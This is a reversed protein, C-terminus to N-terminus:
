VVQYLPRRISPRPPHVLSSAENSPSSTYSYYALSRVISSSCLRLSMITSHHNPFCFISIIGVIFAHNEEFKVDRFLAEEHLHYHDRYLAYELVTNLHGADFKINSPKFFRIGIPVELSEKTQCIELKVGDVVVDLEEVMALYLMHQMVILSIEL